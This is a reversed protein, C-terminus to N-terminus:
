CQTLGRQTSSHRHDRHQYRVRPKKRPKLAKPIQNSLKELRGGEIQQMSEKFEDESMNSLQYRALKDLHEEFNQVDGDMKARNCAACCPVVNGEVYGKSSDIRDIGNIHIVIDSMKENNSYDPINKSLLAGCYECPLLVLNKFLAFSIVEGGCEKKSTYRSIKKYERVFLADRRNKIKHLCGCSRTHGHILHHAAVVCWEGCSCECRWKVVKRSGYRGPMVSRAKLKGFIQGTLDKIIAACIKCCTCSGQNLVAGLVVRYNGCSCKCNWLVQGLNNRKDAMAVVTLQGFTKNVLSKVRGCGCSKVGGSILDSKSVVHAKGCSCNCSCQIKGNSNRADLMSTVTLRGFTQGTLDAIGSAHVRSGACASCSFCQGSKLSSGVVTRFNGCSCKCNWLVQGHRDRGDKLSLVTLKGFTHGLLDIIRTGQIYKIKEMLCLV